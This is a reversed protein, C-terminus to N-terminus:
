NRIAWEMDCGEDIKGLYHEAVTFWYKIHEWDPYDKLSELEDAFCDRTVADRYPFHGLAEDVIWERMKSAVHRVQERGHIMIKRYEERADNAVRLAHALTQPTNDIYLCLTDIRDEVM